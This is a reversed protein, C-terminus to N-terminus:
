ETDSERDLAHQAHQAAKREPLLCRECLSEFPEGAITHLWRIQGRKQRAPGVSWGCITHSSDGSRLGHIALTTLNQVYVIARPNEVATRLADIVLEHQNLQDLARDLKRKWSNNTVSATSTSPREGPLGLDTRLTTLPTDAVYRYIADGSHRALIKIKSIEVGLAALTRAGTVRMSHGGFLRLGADNVLSEKCATAAAEITRVMKDKKPVTGLRNPFLPLSSRQAATLSEAARHNAANVALVALHFPCPLAPSGCLCGWTRLTGMAAPDAKSSALKWTVECAEMDLRIHGTTAAALEVERLLFISGLLLARVPWIPGGEVLPEESSNLALLKAMSLPRSQRAPGIGRQVSRTVWRGTVELLDTWPHGSEIHLLKVASWYTPYSRDGGAKFLSAVAVVGAQTLPLMPGIDLCRERQAAMSHFRSWTKILIDNGGRGFAAERDTHLESILSGMGQANARDLAAQPGGRRLNRVVALDNRLPAPPATASTTPEERRSSSSPGSAPRESAAVPYPAPRAFQRRARALEAAEIISHHVIPLGKAARRKPAM